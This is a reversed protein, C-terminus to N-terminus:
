RTNKMWGLSISAYALVLLFIAYVLGSASVTLASYPISFFLSVAYLAASSLVISLCLALGVSGLSLLIILFHIMRRIKGTEIGLNSFLAQTTRTRRSISMGSLFCAILFGMILLVEVYLYSGNLESYLSNLLNQLPTNGQLGLYNSSVEFVSSLVLPIALITAGYISLLIVTPIVKFEGRILLRTAM